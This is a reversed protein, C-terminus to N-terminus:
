AISAGESLYEGAASLQTPAVSVLSFTAAATTQYGDTKTSTVTGKANYLQITYTTDDSDNMSDSSVDCQLVGRHVEVITGTEFIM